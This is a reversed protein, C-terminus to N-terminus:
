LLKSNESRRMREQAPLVGWQLSNWKKSKKINLTQCCVCFSSFFIFFLGGSQESLSSSSQWLLLFVTFLEVVLAISGQQTFILTGLDCRVFWVSFGICVCVCVCVERTGQRARGPAAKNILQSVYFADPPRSTDSMLFLRKEKEKVTKACTLSNNEKMLVLSLWHNSRHKESSWVTFGWGWVHCSYQIYLTHLLKGPPLSPPSFATSVQHPENHSNAIPFLTHTHAHTPTHTHTHPSLSLTHNMENFWHLTKPLYLRTYVVFSNFLDM